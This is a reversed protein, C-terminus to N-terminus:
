TCIGIWFLKQLSTFTFILTLNVKLGNEGSLFSLPNSDNVPKKPPTASATNLDLTASAYPYLWFAANLSKPTLYAPL